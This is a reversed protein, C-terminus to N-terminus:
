SITVVRLEGGERRFETVEVNGGLRIEDTLLFALPTSNVRLYSLQNLKPDHYVLQGDKAVILVRSPRDYELRLREPRSLYLTGTARTGDPNIQVVRARATDLDNLYGEIREIAAGAEAAAAEPPAIAAAAPGSLGSALALLLSLFLGGLRGVLATVV